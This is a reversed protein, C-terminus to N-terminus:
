CHRRTHLLSHNLGDIDGELHELRFDANLNPEILLSIEADFADDHTEILVHVEHKIISLFDRELLLGSLRQTADHQLAVVDRQQLGGGAFLKTIRRGMGSRDVTEGRCGRHMQADKPVKRM